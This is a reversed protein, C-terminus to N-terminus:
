NKRVVETMGDDRRVLRVPLIHALVQAFAVPNGSQYSGGVPMAAVEPDSIVLNVPAYREFERVAESLPTSTFRLLGKRWPAISRPNVAAISGLGGAVSVQIAQGARLEAADLRRGSGDSAGDIGTQAVSVHGEEVEVDTEADGLDCGKRRVSFRTGLVTVKAPGALVTFPRSPDRAVVFMAQGRPLRTVRRDRYLAV